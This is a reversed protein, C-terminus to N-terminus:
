WSNWGVGPLLRDDFSCLIYWLWHVALFEQHHASLSGSVHRTMVGIFNSNPADTPKIWLSHKLNNVFSDNPVLILIYSLYSSKQRTNAYNHRIIAKHLLQFMCCMKSLLPYQRHQLQSQHWIQKMQTNLLWLPIDYWLIFYQPKFIVTRRYTVSHSVRLEFISKHWKFHEKQLSGTAPVVPV